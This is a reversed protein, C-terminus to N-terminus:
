SITRVPSLHDEVRLGADLDDALGRVPALRHGERARQPRVHAQEVDAHRLHVPDLRGPLEGPGADFVRERDDDDGGEIEVLVHVAGQLGAGAAEQELVGTRLQQHLRDVGGRVAVRQDGRVDGRAQQANATRRPAGGTCGVSGSVARSSSTSAVTARPRVLASIASSSYMLRLVVFVWRALRMLLSPARLRTSSAM